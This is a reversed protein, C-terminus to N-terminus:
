GSMKSKVDGNGFRTSIRPTQRENSKDFYDYREREFDRRRIAERGCTRYWWFTVGPSLGYCDFEPIPGILRGDTWTLTTPEENLFSESRSRTQTSRDAIRGDPRPVTGADTELDIRLLDEASNADNSEELRPLYLVGSSMSKTSTERSRIFSTRESVSSCFTGRRKSPVDHEPTPTSIVISQILM